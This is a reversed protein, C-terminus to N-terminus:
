LLVRLCRQCVCLIPWMLWAYALLIAALLIGASCRGVVSKDWTWVCALFGMPALWFCLLNLLSPNGESPTLPAILGLGFWVPALVLTGLTALAAKGSSTLMVSGVTPPADTM